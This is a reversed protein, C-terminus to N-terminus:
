SRRLTRELHERAAGFAEVTDEYIERAVAYREVLDTGIGAQSLEAHLAECTQLHHDAAARLELYEQAARHQEPTLDAQDPVPFPFDRALLPWADAAGYGYRALVGRGQEFLDFGTTM